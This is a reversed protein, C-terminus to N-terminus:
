SIKWRLVVPSKLEEFIRLREDNGLIAEAIIRGALGTLAVGHGSYGQAFYIHPSIRGFHPSANLTMDIPGAWGYDIKVNELQPFVHLMNRVCLKCWIKKRLKSDSGFLLRNDASLRYYDLLINNDCVSMGNNIVSDATAQDLPETAIIFSEVPLIKRNIGRIFRNRYHM